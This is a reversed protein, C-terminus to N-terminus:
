CRQRMIVAGCATGLGDGSTFGQQGPGRCHVMARLVATEPEGLDRIVEWTM